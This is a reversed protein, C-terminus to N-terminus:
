RIGHVTCAGVRYPQCKQPQSNQHIDAYQKIEFIKVKKYLIEIGCKLCIQGQQMKHQGKTDTKVSELLQGIHDVGVPTLAAAVTKQFIGSIYRKEGLQNGTGNHIM